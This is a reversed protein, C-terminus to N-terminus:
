GEGVLSNEGKSKRKGGSRRRSNGGEMSGPAKELDAGRSTMAM